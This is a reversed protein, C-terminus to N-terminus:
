DLIFRERPPTIPYESRERQTDRLRRTGRHRALFSHIV